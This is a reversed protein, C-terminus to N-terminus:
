RHKEHSCQAYREEIIVASILVKIPSFLKENRGGLYSESFEKAIFVERKYDNEGSVGDLEAYGFSGHARIMSERANCYVAWALEGCASSDYYRVGTKRIFERIMLVNEPAGVAKAWNFAGFPRFIEGNVSTEYDDGCTFVSEGYGHAIAYLATMAYRTNPLERINQRRRFIGLSQDMKGAVANFSDPLHTRDHTLLENEAIAFRFYAPSIQLPGAYDDEPPYAYLGFSNGGTYERFLSRGETLLGAYVTESHPVPVILGSHVGSEVPIAAMLFLSLASKNKVNGCLDAYHEALRYIEMDAATDAALAPVPAYVLACLALALAACRRLTNHKKTMM